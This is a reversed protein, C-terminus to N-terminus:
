RTTTAARPFRNGDTVYPVRAAYVPASPLLHGTFGDQDAAILRLQGIRSLDMLDLVPRCVQVAPVDHEIGGHRAQAGAVIRFAMRAPFCRKVSFCM